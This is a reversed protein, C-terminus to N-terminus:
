EILRERGSNREIMSGRSLVGGCSPGTCYVRQRDIPPLNEAAAEQFYSELQRMLRQTQATTKCWESGPDLLPSIVVCDDLVLKGDDLLRPVTGPGLELIRAPNEGRPSSGHLYILLSMPKRETTVPRWVILQEGTPTEYRQHLSGVRGRPTLGM